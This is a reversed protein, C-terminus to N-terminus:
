GSDGGYDVVDGRLKLVYEVGEFPSGVPFPIDFSITIHQHKNRPFLRILIPLPTDIGSGVFIRLVEWGLFPLWM